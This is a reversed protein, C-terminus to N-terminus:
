ASSVITESHDVYTEFASRRKRSSQREFREAGDDVLYLAPVVRPLAESQVRLQAGRVKGVDTFDRNGDRDVRKGGIRVGQSTFDRYLRRTVRLGKWPETAAEGNRLLVGVAANKMEVSTVVNRQVSEARQGIRHENAAKSHARELVKQVVELRRAPCSDLAAFAFDQPMGEELVTSRVNFFIKTAKSSEGHECVASAVASLRALASAALTVMQVM